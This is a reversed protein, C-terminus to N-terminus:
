RSSSSGTSDVECAMLCFGVRLSLQSVSGGLPAVPLSPEKECLFMESLLLPHPLALHQRLVQPSTPPLPEGQDPTDLISLSTLSKPPLFQHGSLSLSAPTTNPGQRGQQGCMM